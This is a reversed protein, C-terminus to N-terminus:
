FCDVMEGPNKLPKQVRVIRYFAPSGAPKEEGASLPHKEAIQCSDEKKFVTFMNKRFQM